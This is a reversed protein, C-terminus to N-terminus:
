KRYQVIIDLEKIKDIYISLFSNRRDKYSLIKNIGYYYEDTKDKKTKQKAYFIKNSNIKEM